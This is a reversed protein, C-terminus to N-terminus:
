CVTRWIWLCRWRAVISVEAIGETWGKRSAYMKFGLNGISPGCLWSVGAISLTTIGMVIFPDLGSVQAMWGDIDQAAVIPGGISVGTGATLVSAGLNVYRRKRRLDFFKDWTM